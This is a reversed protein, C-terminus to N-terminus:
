VAQTQSKKLLTKIRNIMKKDDVLRLFLNLYDLEIQKEFLSKVEKPNEDIDFVIRENIEIDRDAHIVCLETCLSQEGDSLFNKKDSIFSDEDDKNSFKEFRTLVPVIPIDPLNDKARTKQVNRLMQRTGDLSEPSTTFFSILMDGFLSICLGSLPTIGARADILIYDFGLEDSQVRGLLDLLMRVGYSNEEYLLSHWNIRSLKDWYDNSIVNGSPIISINENYHILYPNIDAPAIGNNVFYDIYDVVGLMTNIRPDNKDIFKYHIGPAELDMDIICARFRFRALYSAVNALALTRGTGGKYSYFVIKKKKDM